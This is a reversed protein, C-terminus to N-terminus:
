LNLVQIFDRGTETNTVDEVVEACSKCHYEGKHDKWVDQRSAMRNETKCRFVRIPSIKITDTQLDNM